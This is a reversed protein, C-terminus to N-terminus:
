KNNAILGFLGGRFYFIDGAVIGVILFLIDWGKSSGKGYAVRTLVILIICWIVLYIGAGIGMGLDGQINMVGTKGLIGFVIALIGIVLLIWNFINAIKYMVKSANEM